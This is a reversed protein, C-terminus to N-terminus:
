CFWAWLLGFCTLHFIELGVLRSLELFGPQLSCVWCGGRTGAQTAAEVHTDLGMRLGAVLCLDWPQLGSGQMQDEGAIGGLPITPCIGQGKQAKEIFHFTYGEEEM